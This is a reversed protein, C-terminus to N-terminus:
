VHLSNCNFRCSCATSAVLAPLYGTCLGTYLHLLCSDGTIVHAEQGIFLEGTCNLGNGDLKYGTGCSCSFSGITNTCDSECGGNNTACEDIDAYCSDVLWVWLDFRRNFNYVSSFLLRAPWDYGIKPSHIPLIHSALSVLLFPLWLDKSLRQSASVVSWNAKRFALNDGRSLVETIPLGM